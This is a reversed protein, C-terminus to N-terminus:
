HNIPHKHHEGAKTPQASLLNSPLHPDGCGCCGEARLERYRHEAERFCDVRSPHRRVIDVQERAVCISSNKFPLRVFNRHINHATTVPWKPSAPAFRGAMAAAIITKDQACVEHKTHNDAASTFWGHKGGARDEGALEARINHEYALMQDTPHQNHFGM